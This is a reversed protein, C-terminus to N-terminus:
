ALLRTEGADAAVAKDSSFSSISARNLHLTTEFVSPAKALDAAFGKAM